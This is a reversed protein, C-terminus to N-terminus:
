HHSLWTELDAVSRFDLLAEGLEDLEDASLTDLREEVEPSVAGFRKKILRSVIGEKGDHLGQQLGKQEWSTMLEMTAGQEEPTLKTFEREYQQMEEATLKLYNEVFAWIVGAKEPDLKLTAMLRACEIKVRWRDQPEIKMKAMLATAAPNPQQIFARWSLRNLQIVTYHFDLVAKDPFAVEYRDPEARRPADYSFLAVPYVPLDYRDLLRYFYRFMRKPFGAEKRSQNEVHVLFFTEKGRFRAKVVLDAERKKSEATIHAIAQKDLFDLSSTDLYKAVEPLFAEVFEAFFTTLLEKFARDHDM